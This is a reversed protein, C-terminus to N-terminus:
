TRLGLSNDIHRTHHSTNLKTFHGYLRHTVVGDVVNQTHKIVNLNLHMEITGICNSSLFHQYLGVAGVKVNNVFLQEIVPSDAADVVLVGVKIGCRYLHENHGSRCVGVARSELVPQRPLLLLTDIHIHLCHGVISASIGDLVQNIRSIIGVM